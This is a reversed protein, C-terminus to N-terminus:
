AAGAPVEEIFWRVHSWGEWSISDGSMGPRNLGMRTMLLTFARPLIATALELPLRAKGGIAIRLLTGDVTRSLTTTRLGPTFAPATTGDVRFALRAGEDWILVSEEIKIGRDTEIGIVVQDPEDAHEGLLEHLQRVGVLGEPLRRSALRQGAADMLYVDHHDEAWDDGVFIM